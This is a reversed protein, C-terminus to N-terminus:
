DQGNEILCMLKDYSSPKMEKGAHWLKLTRFDLNKGALLKYAQDKSYSVDLLMKLKEDIQKRLKVELENRKAVLKKIEEYKMM